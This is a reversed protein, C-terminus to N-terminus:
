NFYSWLLYGVSALTVIVGIGILLPNAPVFIGKCTTKAVGSLLTVIGSLTGATGLEKPWSASGRWHKKKLNEVYSKTDLKQKNQHAKSKDLASDTKNKDTAEKNGPESKKYTTTYTKKKFILM